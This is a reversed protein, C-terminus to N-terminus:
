ILCLHTTSELEKFGIDFSQYLQNNLDYGAISRYAKFSFSNKLKDNPRIVMGVLKQPRETNVKFKYNNEM